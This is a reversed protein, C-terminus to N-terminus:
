KQQKKSLINAVKTMNDKVLPFNTLFSKENSENFISGSSLDNMVHFCYLDTWTLSDGVFYGTGVNALRAELFKLTSPLSEDKFKKSLILRRQEDKEFVVARVMEDHVDAIQHVYMDAVAREIETKGALGFKNALYRAIALRQALVVM